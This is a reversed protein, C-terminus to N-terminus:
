ASALCRWKSTAGNYQFGVTLPLTTSGNSAAPVSVSSNATNVFTINQAVNSYDYIRVIMMMGDAAGSTPLTITMAAASSNTFNNVRYSLSATGANSTVPIAYPVTLLASFQGYAAADTAASGNALGTIKSGGMAIAGSMTGGTTQLAGAVATNASIISEVNTTSSLTPNPYSGTLDGGASGNPPLATPIQGFAAADDSASGNSLGTIKHGGVAIAGTSTLGPVTVTGTFTPSNIPAVAAPNLTFQAYTLPDTGITTVQSTLLWSTLANATGFQVPIAGTNNIDAPTDYDFARTFIPPLLSTQLQTLFYIGNFAGSPSQTDNKVLLRQRLATFTFGDITIPTNVAGTLTANIGGTGNLYTLSSTDSAAVTAAQVAVAPNVGAVANAV